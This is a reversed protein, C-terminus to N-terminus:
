IWCAVVILRNRGMTPKEILVSSVWQMVPVDMLPVLEASDVLTALVSLYCGKRM